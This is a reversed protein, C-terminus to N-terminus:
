TQPTVPVVDNLTIIKSLLGLTEISAKHAEPTAASCCDEVVFVHFGHDVANRVTHEVINNTVVGFVIVSDIGRDKLIAALETEQFAGVRQHVIVTESGIPQLGEVFDGGWTGEVLADMDKVMSLLPSNPVLDPHEPQFRVAVHIVPIQLSRVTEVLLKGKEIVNRAVVQEGFFSGFKGDISVIDNLLHLSLVATTAPDFNMGM